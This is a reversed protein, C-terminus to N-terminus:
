IFSHTPLCSHAYPLFKLLSPTVPRCLQPHTRFGMALLRSKRRLILFCKELGSALDPPMSYVCPSDRLASVGQAGNHKPNHHVLPQQSVTLHLVPSHLGSEVLMCPKRQRQTQLTGARFLYRKLGPINSWVRVANQLVRGRVDQLTVAETQPFLPPQPDAPCM